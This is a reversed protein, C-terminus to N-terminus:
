AVGFGFPKIDLTWTSNLTQGSGNEIYFECDASLPIAPLNITQTTDTSLKFSGVYINKNSASPVPADNTSKINMDRRYLHVVNDSAPAVAFTGSLVADALPFNSVVSSAPTASFNTDTVSAGSTVVNVTTSYIIISEGAM